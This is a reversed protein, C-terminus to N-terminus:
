RVSTGKRSRAAKAVPKPGCKEMPQATTVWGDKIVEVIYRRCNHLASAVFRVQFRALDRHRGEPWAFVKDDPTKALATRVAHAANRYDTLSLRVLLARSLGPHLGAALARVQYADSKDVTPPPLPSVPQAETAGPTHASTTEQEDVSQSAPLEHGSDQTDSASATVPISQEIPGPAIEAQTVSADQALDPLQGPRELGVEFLILYLSIAIATIVGGWPLSVRREEDYPGGIREESFVSGFM